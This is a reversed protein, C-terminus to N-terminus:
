HKPRGLGGRNSKRKVYIGWVAIWLLSVVVSGKPLWDGWRLYFTTPANTTTRGNTHSLPISLEAAYLGTEDTRKVALRQGTRDYIASQGSLTAHIVPLGVEVARIAALSAHQEPAWSKQFTTTASQVVIVDAGMRALNASMDPFSSEFCVLAGVRVEGDATPVNLVRLGDGRRRDEKAAETVQAIWGLLPRLPVYEGFPVLRMKDYTGSPGNPTVLVSAKRIGGTGPARADVNVLVPAGAARSADQIWRMFESHEWPDVGVSSEGWVVLDPRQGGEYRHPIELTALESGRFREVAEDIQGPQVGVIYFSSQEVRSELRGGPDLSRTALWSLALSGFLLLAATGAAASASLWDTNGAASPSAPKSLPTSFVTGAEKLTASVAVQFAMLVWSLLWVGGISALPLFRPSNWQSSGLLGWPGGLTEWSRGYEAVVWLSPVVVAAIATRTVSRAISLERSASGPALKWWALGWPLWTLGGIIGIIPLFVGVKPYLWHHVALFYAAGASLIRLVADGASSALSIWILAPVLGIWGVVWWSPEPFGLLPLAGLAASVMLRRVPGKKSGAIGAIIASVCCFGVLPWVLAPENGPRWFPVLALAAVIFAVNYLFDHVSFVRGRFLDPAAEQLHADIRIKTAQFVFAMCALSVLTIAIQIGATASLALAAAYAGFSVAVVDAPHRRKTLAPSAVTGLAAAVGTVVLAATYGSVELRYRRDAVLVAIVLGAGIVARMTFIALLAGAVAPRRLVESLEAWIDGLLGAGARGAKLSRSRTTQTPLKSGEGLRTGLLRKHVEATNLPRDHNPGVNGIRSYFLASASYAAAAALCGFGPSIAALGAGAIAGLFASVLGAIGSLANADVLDDSKVTRPLAAGKGALVFRSASLVLVLTLYGIIRSRLVLAAVALAAVGARFTSAATLLKRRDIRDIFVGALPGVLSYPLLSAALIRSIESPTAGRGIDFVVIQAISIQLLGDGAQGLAQGFVLNRFRGQLLRWANEVRDTRSERAKM